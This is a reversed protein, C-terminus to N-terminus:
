VYLATSLIFSKIQSSCFCIIFFCSLFTYLSFLFCLLFQAFAIFDILNTSFLKIVSVRVSKWTKSWTSACNNWCYNFEVSIRHAHADNSRKSFNAFKVFIWFSELTCAIIWNITQKLWPTSPFFSKTKCRDSESNTYLLMQMRYTDTDTDTLNLLKVYFHM